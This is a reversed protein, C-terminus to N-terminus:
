AYALSPENKIEKLKKQTGELVDKVCRKLLKRKIEPNTATKLAQNLKNESAFADDLAEQKYKVLESKM